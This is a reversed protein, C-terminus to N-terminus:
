GGIRVEFGQSEFMRKIEQARKEPLSNAVEFTYRKGFRKYKNAGLEHYLLLDIKRLRRYAELLKIMSGVNEIADNYGPILPIRIIVPTKLHALHTFNEFILQNSEGTAEKHKESNTHKIDFLVLDLFSLIKEFESWPAHGCTEMATHIGRKKCIRLIERSFAPQMLPEGGSLTVGGGSNEYFLRDKEVEEVIDEVSKREGSIKRAGSPCVEACKGCNTCLSRNIQWNDETIAREPCVNICSGCGICREPFEGIEPSLSQSEPNDCWACRLPCGKLFVLTRIGPGDKLSFRQIDFVYGEIKQNILSDNEKVKNDVFASKNSM